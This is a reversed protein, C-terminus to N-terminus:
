FVSPRKAPQSSQRPEEQSKRGKRVRRRCNEIGKGGRLGHRSCVLITERGCGFHYQHIAVEISGRRMAPGVARPRNKAKRQRFPKGRKIGEGGGRVGGALCDVVQPRIIQCQPVIPIKISRCLPAARIKGPCNKHNGGGTGEGVQVRKRSLFGVGGPICRTRVASRGGARQDLSAVAIKVSRGAVAAGITSASQEFDTGGAYEGAQIGEASGRSPGETRARGNGIRQHERRVACKVAGRLLAAHAARSCKELVRGCATEGLNIGEVATGGAVVGNIRIPREHWPGVTLKVPCASEAASLAAAANKGDGVGSAHRQKMGKRLKLGPRARRQNQPCVAIQVPGCGGISEVAFPSEESDTWRSLSEARVSEAGQASM